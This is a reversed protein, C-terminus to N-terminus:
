QREKRLEQALRKYQERIEIAEEKTWRYHKPASELREVREPGIKEILAIRYEVINGSHHRNCVTCAAHVNDPDFRLYSCAGVSRYHSADVKGGTFADDNLPVGCSICLKGRDRERVWANFAKQAEQLLENRTKLEEKKEAAWRRREKREKRVRKEQLKRGHEIACGPKECTKQTSQFPRFYEKCEPCKKKRSAKLSNKRQPQSQTM